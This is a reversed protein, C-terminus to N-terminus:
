KKIIKKYLYKRKINNNGHFIVVMLLGISIPVMLLWLYWESIIGNQFAVGPAGGIYRFALALLPPLIFNNSDIISSLKQGILELAKTHMIRLLFINLSAFFMILWVIWSKDDTFLPKWMGSYVNFWNHNIAKNFLISVPIFFIFTSLTVVITRVLVIEENNIAKHKNMGKKLLLGELAWFFGALLGLLIGAITKWEMIGTNKYQIIGPIAVFLGGGLVAIIMGLWSLWNDKEKFFLKNLIIAFIPYFSTLIVGKSPGALVVGLIFTLNGLGTGVIGSITFLKMKPNAIIKFAKKLVKPGFYILSILLSILEKISMVGASYAIGNKDKIDVMFPAFLILTLLIAEFGQTFIVGVASAVGRQKNNKFITM